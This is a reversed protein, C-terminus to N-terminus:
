FSAGLGSDVSAAPTITKFRRRTQRVHGLLPTLHPQKPIAYVSMIGFVATDYWDISGIM